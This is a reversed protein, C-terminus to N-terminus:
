IIKESVFKKGISHREVYKFSDKFNNIMSIYSETNMKNKHDIIHSTETNINDFTNLKQDNEKKIDSNINEIIENIIGASVTIQDTKKETPAYPKSKATKSVAGASNISQKKYEIKGSKSETM